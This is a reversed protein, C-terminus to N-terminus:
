SRAPIRGEDLVLTELTRALFSAMQDRRVPNDPAYSTATLGQTFGLGAVKRINVEHVNGAIDTFAVEAPDVERDVLFEFARVLFSAMQDRRVPSTPDYIGPERGQVIGAAALREVNDAHVGSVDTFTSGGAPLDRDSADILRAIFSAMQERSVSRSPEYTAAGTGQALEYFVVCDINADHTSNPVVDEFGADPAVAGVCQALPGAGGTLAFWGPTSDRGFMTGDADIPGLAEIGTLGGSGDLVAIEEGSPSLVAMRPGTTGSLRGTYANGTGDVVLPGTAGTTDRWELSGDTADMSIVRNGERAVLRDGAVTLDRIEACVLAACEPDTARLATDIDLEWDIALPDTDVRFLYAQDIGSGAQRPVSVFLDGDPHVAQALRSGFDTGPLALTDVVAGTALDLALLTNQTYPCSENRVRSAAFVRDGAEPTWFWPQIGCGRDFVEVWRSTGDANIARVTPDFATTDYTLVAGDAALQLGYDGCGRGGPPNLPVGDGATYRKGPVLAGTDPNLAVIAQSAGPDDGAQRTDDDLTQVAWIEGSDAVSPRCSDDLGSTAWQLAGTAADLAMVAGERVDEGGEDIVRSTTAILDGNSSLILDGFEGGTGRTRGDVSWGDLDDSVSRWALGPDSAPGTAAPQHNRMGVGGSTPWDSGGNAGAPGAVLVAMATAALLSVTRRAPVGGAQRRDSVARGSGKVRATHLVDPLSRMLSPGRM